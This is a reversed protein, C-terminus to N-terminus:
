KFRVTNQQIVNAMKADEDVIKDAVAKMKGTDASSVGKFAELTTGAKEVLNQFSTLRSLNNKTINPSPIKEIGSVANEASAVASKFKGKDIGIKGM